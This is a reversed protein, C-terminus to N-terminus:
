GARPAHVPIDGMALVLVHPGRGYRQHMVKEVVLRRDGSFQASWGHWWRWGVFAPAAVLGGLFSCAQVREGGVM